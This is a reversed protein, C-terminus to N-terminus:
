KKLFLQTYYAVGKNNKIVAIGIHTFDGEINKKHGTSNLWAAMVSAANKQGNAVNEGTKKANEEKMLADSREDFNDHSIDNQVIMYETHQKALSTALANKALTNKGISKRHENVLLLIENATTLTEINGTENDTADDKSCALVSFMLSLSFVLYKFSTLNYTKM